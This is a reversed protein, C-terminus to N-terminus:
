QESNNIYSWAKGKHMYLRHQRRAKQIKGLLDECASTGDHNLLPYCDDGRYLCIAGDETRQIKPEYHTFPQKVFHSWALSLETMTSLRSLMVFAPGALMIDKRNHEAIAQNIDSWRADVIEGQDIKVDQTIETADYIFFTAAFRKKAAVPTKWLAVPLLSRANINLGTEEYCERVVTKRQAAYSLGDDHADLIQDQEDTRGGPFVWSGGFTINANKKLLLVELKTQQERLLIVSASPIFTPETTM